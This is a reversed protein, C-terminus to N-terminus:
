GLNNEKIYEEAKERTDFTKDRLTDYKWSAKYRMNWTIISKFERVKYTNYVTSEGKYYYWMNKITILLIIIYKKINM